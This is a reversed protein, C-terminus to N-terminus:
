DFWGNQHAFRMERLEYARMRVGLCRGGNYVNYLLNEGTVRRASFIVRGGDKNTRSLDPLRGRMDDSTIM